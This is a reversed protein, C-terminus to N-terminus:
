FNISIRFFIEVLCIDYKRKILSGDMKGIRHTDCEPWFNFITKVCVPQSIARMGDGAQRLTHQRGCTAVEGM